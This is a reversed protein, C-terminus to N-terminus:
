NVTKRNERFKNLNKKKYKMAKDLTDTGRFSQDGEKPFYYNISSFYPFVRLKMM